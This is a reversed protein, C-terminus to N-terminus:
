ALALIFLRYEINETNSHDSLLNALSKKQLKIMIYIHKNIKTINSIKLLKKSDLLRAVYEVITNILDLFNLSKKLVITQLMVKIDCLRLYLGITAALYDINESKFKLETKIHAIPSIITSINNNIANGFFEILSNGLTL